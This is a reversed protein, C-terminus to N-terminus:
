PSPPPVDLMRALAEIARWDVDSRAAAAASDSRVIAHHLRYLDDLVARRRTATWGLAHASGTQLALEAELLADEARFQRALAERHPFPLEVAGSAARVFSPTGAGQWGPPAGASMVPTRITGTHVVRSGPGPPASWPDFVVPHPEGGMGPPRIRWPDAAPPPAGAGAGARGAASPPPSPAPHSVGEGTGLFRGIATVDFGASGTASPASPAAPEGSRRLLARVQDLWQPDARQPYAERLAREISEKLFRLNEIFLANGGGEDTARFGDILEAITQGPLRGAALEDAIGLESFLRADVILQSADFGPPLLDAFLAREVAFDDDLWSATPLAAVPATSSATTVPPPQVTEGPHHLGSGVPVSGPAPVPDVPQLWFSSTEGLAPTVITETAAPHAATAGSVTAPPDIWGRRRDGAEAAESLSHGPLSSAPPPGPVDAAHALGGAPELFAPNIAVVIPHTPGPIDLRGPPAVTTAAVIVSWRAAAPPRQMARTAQMTRTARTARTSLADLAGYKRALKDLGMITLLNIHELAERIEYAREANDSQVARCAMDQLARYAQQSVAVGSASPRLHNPNGGFKRFRRMVYRSFRHAASHFDAHALDQGINSLHRSRDFLQGYVTVWDFSIPSHAPPPIATVTVTPEAAAPPQQVAHISLAEPIGYRANMARLEEVALKDIDDLAKGIAGARVLDGDRAAQRATEQLTLYALDPNTIGPRPALEVRNGGFKVFQREVRKAVREVARHLARHLDMMAFHRYHRRLERLRAYVAHFDSEPAASQPPRDAGGLLGLKMESGQGWPVGPHPRAMAANEGCVASLPEIELPGGRGTAPHMSVAGELESARFGGATKSGPAAGDIRMTEQLAGLREATDASRTLAPLNEARAVTGTEGMEEAVRADVSNVLEELPARRAGTLEDAADLATAPAQAASRGAALTGTVSKAAAGTEAPAPPPSAAPASGASGVGGGDGGGRGAILNRVGSSVRMLARFTSRSSQYLSGTYVALGAAHAGPGYEREYHTAGLELLVADAACTGIREEVGMLGHVWLDLPTTVRIGGGAVTDDTMAAVIAGGGDWLERMHGALLVTDESAAHVDLVGEVTTHLHAAQEALGHGTHEHLTGQVRARDRGAVLDANTGSRGAEIHESAGRRLADGGVLQEISESRLELAFADDVPPFDLNSVTDPVAPAAAHPLPASPPPLAETGTVAAMPQAPMPTASPPTDMM